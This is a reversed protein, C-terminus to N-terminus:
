QEEKWRAVRGGGGAVRQVEEVTSVFYLARGGQIVQLTVMWRRGQSCGLPTLRTREGLVELFFLHLFPLGPAM